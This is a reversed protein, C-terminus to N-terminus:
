LQRDSESRSALLGIARWARPERRLRLQLYDTWPLITGRAAIARDSPPHCKSVDWAVQLQLVGSRASAPQQLGRFETPVRPLHDTRSSETRAAQLTKKSSM